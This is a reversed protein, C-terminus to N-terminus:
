IGAIWRAALTHLTEWLILFVLVEMRQILRDLSDFWRM